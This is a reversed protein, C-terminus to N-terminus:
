HELPSNLSQFAVTFYRKLLNDITSHDRHLLSALETKRIGHNVHCRAVVYARADVLDARRCPGVIDKVNVMYTRAAVHLADM